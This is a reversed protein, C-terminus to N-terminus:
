DVLTVLRRYVLVSGPISVLSPVASLTLVDGAVPGEEPTHQICLAGPGCLVRGLTVVDGVRTYAYTVTATVPASPTAGQVTTNRTAVGREDLILEEHLITAGNSSPDNARTTPLPRGDVSTLQFIDAPPAPETASHCAAMLSLLAAALSLHRMSM